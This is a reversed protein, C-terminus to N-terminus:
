SHYFKQLLTIPNHPNWCSRQLSRLSRNGAKNFNLVNLAVKRMIDMNLATNETRICAKDQNFTVDLVWHLRNEIHWHNRILTLLREPSAKLSSIYYQIERTEKNNLITRRTVEIVSTLGPWNHQENLWTVDELVRCTRSEIRGHGKDHHEFIAMFDESTDQFYCSVDEFLTKQNKKLSICYDGELDIIRQCIDRQAAIADITVVRGKLDLTKLLLPIAKIENTKDRVKEFGLVMRNSTCWANVLHLPHHTSNRLTKGDLAIAESGGLASVINDTLNEFWPYFIEPDIGNLLYRFTDHHPAHSPLNYHKQFYPHTLDAYDAIGTFSTEGAMCACLMVLMMYEFPYIQNKNSRPDELEEFLGSCISM